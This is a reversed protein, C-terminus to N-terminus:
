RNNHEVQGQTRSTHHCNRETVTNDLINYLAEFLGLCYVQYVLCRRPVNSTNSQSRTAGRTKLKRVPILSAFTDPNIWFM